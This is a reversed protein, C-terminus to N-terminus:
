NQVSQVKAELLEKIVGDLTKYLISKQLTNSLNEWFLKPFPATPLEEDLLEYLFDIEYKEKADKITDIIIKEIEAVELFKDFTEQFEPEYGMTLITILHGM